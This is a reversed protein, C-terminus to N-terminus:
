LRGGLRHQWALSITGFVWTLAHVLDALYLRARDDDDSERRRKMGFRKADYATWRPTPIEIVRGYYFARLKPRFGSRELGRDIGTRRHHQDLHRERCRCHQRGAVKGDAVAGISRGGSVARRLDERAVQGECGGLGQRDPYRDLNAGIPDKLAAVLFTPAKGGARGHSRRGDARRQQIRRGGPRPDRTKAQLGLRRFLAGGHAAPRPTPRAASCRTWSRRARTKRHGLGCRLGLAQRGTWSRLAPQRIRSSRMNTLRERVRSRRHTKGFFNDEEVAALGTHADTSGVMGFKFPNVGLEAELKLGNKLASRAYEFELM